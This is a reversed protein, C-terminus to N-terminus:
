RHMAKLRSWSTSELSVTGCGVGYAGIQGCAGAIAPSGEQLTYDGAGADCFQPDVDVLDSADLFEDGEVDDAANQWYVNCGTTWVPVVGWYVAPRISSWSLAFINHTVELVNSRHFTMAVFCGVFTNNTVTSSTGNAIQLAESHTNAFLCGRVTASGTIELGGGGIFRCDEVVTSWGNAGFFGLECDVCHNSTLHNDGGGCRARVRGLRCDAIAVGCEWLEWRVTGDGSFECGQILLDPSELACFQDAFPEHGISVVRCDRIEVGPFRVFEMALFPTVEATITFGELRAGSGDGDRALVTISEGFGSSGVGSLITQDAGARSVVSVGSRLAIVAKVYRLRNPGVPVLHTNRDAYTGPGVSVIDGPQAADVAEQLGYDEPVLLTASNAPLVFATVSLFSAVLVPKM